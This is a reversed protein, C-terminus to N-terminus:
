MIFQGLSDAWAAANRIEYNEFAFFATIFFIALMTRIGMGLIHSGLKKSENSNSTCNRIRNLNFAGKLTFFVSILALIAVPVDVLGIRINRNRYGVFCIGLISNGDVENLVMILVTLVFPLAWAIFHFYFNEKDIRDRISSGRDNTQIYWAYAFVAFWVAAAILFYYILIFPVICALNEGASPESYRLTGDRRCVINERNGPIFQM